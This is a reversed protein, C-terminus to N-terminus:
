RAWWLVSAAALGAFVVGSLVLILAAVAPSPPAQIAGGRAAQREPAGPESGPAALEGFPAAPADDAAGEEQPESRLSVRVSSPSSGIPAPPTGSSPAGPAHPLPQTELWPGPLGASVAIRELEEAFARASPFRYEPRKALARMVANELAEPIPQSAHCSPPAPAERLHAVVLDLTERHHDFPTRGALLAYLVIGVAYIDTREDVARGLAQEPSFFRPTGVSMGEAIPIALPALALGGGGASAGTLVKAIGFDLVKIARDGPGGPVADCLFLNELKIDRHIIGAAHAAGLGALTQRVYAIAELVPLAGRARQEERLTRGVLREMVLYPRGEPTQGFDTVVVLNPHTLRAVAQAELRMRDILHPSGAYCDQLLKVVVHKGLVTQEALVVDAMGGRSLPELFRYPTGALLDRARDAPM